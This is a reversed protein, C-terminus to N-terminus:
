IEAGESLGAIVTIERESDERSRSSIRRRLLATLGFLAASPLLWLCAILAHPNELVYNLPGLKLDHSPLARLIRLRRFGFTSYATFQSNRQLSEFPVVEPLYPRDSSDIVLRSGDEAEVVAVVHPKKGELYLRRASIGAASAMNVFLRTAEGCRGAGAALTDAASDRLFPRNRASFDAGHVRGRIFDRIAAVKSALDPSTTKSLAENAAARVYLDERHQRVGERLGLALTALALAFTLLFLAPRTM